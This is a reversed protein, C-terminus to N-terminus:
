GKEEGHRAHNKIVDKMADKAAASCSLTHAACADVHVKCLM